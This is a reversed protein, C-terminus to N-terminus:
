APPEGPFRYRAGADMCARCGMVVEGPQFTQPVGAKKCWTPMAVFKDGISTHDHDHAHVVGPTLKSTLRWVDSAQIARVEPVVKPRTTREHSAHGYLDADFLHDPDTM